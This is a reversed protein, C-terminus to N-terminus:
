RMWKKVTSFIKSITLFRISGDAYKEKLSKVVFADKECVSIVKALGTKKCWAIVTEGRRGGFVGLRIM